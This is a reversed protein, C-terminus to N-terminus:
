DVMFSCLTFASSFVFQVRTVALWLSSHLILDMSSWIDTSLFLRNEVCILDHFFNYFFIWYNSSYVFSAPMSFSSHHMFVPKLWTSLSRYYTTVSESDNLQTPSMPAQNSTSKILKSTMIFQNLFYLLQRDIIVLITQPHLYFDATRSRTTM